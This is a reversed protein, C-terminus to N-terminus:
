RRAPGQLEDRTSSWDHWLPLSLFGRCAPAHPASPWLGFCGRASRLAGAPRQRSVARFLSWLIASCYAPYATDKSSPVRGRQLPRDPAGPDGGDRTYRIACRKSSGRAFTGRLLPTKNPLPENIPVPASRAGPPPTTPPQHPVRRLPTEAHHAIDYRGGTGARPASGAVRVRSRCWSTLAAPLAM